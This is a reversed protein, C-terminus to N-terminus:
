HVHNWNSSLINGCHSNPGLVVTVDVTLLVHIIRDVHAGRPHAVHHVGVLQVGDCNPFLNGLLLNLLIFLSLQLPLNLFNLCLLKFQLVFKFFIIFSFIPSLESGLFKLRLNFFVLLM